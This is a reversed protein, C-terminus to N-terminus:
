KTKAAATLVDGEITLIYPEPINVFKVTVKKTFNGANAANYTVKITSSKGKPLAEQKYVPTTCGCEATAVEIVVPKASNNTYTFTYTAPVNQKIKGFSHKTKNFVIDPTKTVQSQAFAGISFVLCFLVLLKKM